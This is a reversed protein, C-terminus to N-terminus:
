PKNIENKPPTLSESEESPSPISLQLSDNVALFKEKLKNELADLELECLTYVVYYFINFLM